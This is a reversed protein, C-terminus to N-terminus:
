EDKNADNDIVEVTYHNVNQNETVQTPAGFGSDMLAKYANVDGARAKKVLALTIMDEQSLTENEGTLPNTGKQEVSLWKRAITSRNKSGIPRGAPNSVEGKKFFKLNEENAM